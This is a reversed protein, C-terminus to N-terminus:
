RRRPHRYPRCPSPRLRQHLGLDQDEPRRYRAAARPERFPQLHAAGGPDLACQGARLLRAGPLRHHRHDQRCQSRRLGAGGALPLGAAPGRRRCAPLDPEARPQGAARGPQLGRRHRRRRGDARRQRRGAARRGAEALGHRHRLGARPAARRQVQAVARLGSRQPAAGRGPGVRLGRRCNRRRSSVPSRRSPKPRCAAARRRPDRCVRGRGGRADEGRRDRAGPDQHAGQLPQRAPRLSQLRAADGRSLRAARRKPLFERLTKGIMPTRGLGGGVIVEFGVEGQENRWLRLGIDHVRVAARDNPSGTIAIKFKRPLFTFEPHLTSWQRVIEAWIRPDEIEDIAAGAFHDATVNRICNGRRRCPTCTSKPWRRWRTPRM